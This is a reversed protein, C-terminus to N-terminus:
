EGYEDDDDSGYKFRDYDGLLKTLVYFMIVMVGGCIIIIQKAVSGLSAWQNTFYDM